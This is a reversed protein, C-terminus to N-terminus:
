QGLKASYGSQVAANVVVKGTFSQGQLADQAAGTDRFTVELMYYVVKGTAGSNPTLTETTSIVGDENPLVSADHIVNCNAYNSDCSKLTYTIDEDSGGKAWSFEPVAWSKTVGTWALNFDVASGGTNTVTFKMPDIAQGPILKDISITSSQAYTVEMKATTIDMGNGTDNGGVQATFYAFTTGIVATLLTAVAIVSLFVTNKKDM